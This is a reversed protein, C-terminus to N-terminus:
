GKNSRAPPKKWRRWVKRVVLLYVLTPVPAQILGWLGWFWPHSSHKRADIFLWIGQTLLIVAVLLYLPWPLHEQSIHNASTLNFHTM